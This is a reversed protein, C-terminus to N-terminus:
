TAGHEVSKLIQSRLDQYPVPESLKTLSKLTISSQSRQYGDIHTTPVVFFVWQRINLPDVTAKERHALLAFVYLQAQRQSTPSLNNTNPDWARSPRISFSPSSLKTQYWSQLYASCKVEIKIGEPSTLDWAAWEDRPRATDIGLAKAILFEALRGRTANSLLDSVSWRWFDLVTPGIAHGDDHVPEAGTRTTAEIRSLTVTSRRRALHQARMHAQVLAVVARDVPSVKQWNARSEEITPLEVVTVREGCKPCDVEFLADFMEGQQLESGLGQWGCARCTHMASRWKDYYKPM